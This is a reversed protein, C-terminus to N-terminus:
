SPMVESMCPLTAANNSLESKKLNLPISHTAMTYTVAMMNKLTIAMAVVLAEPPTPPVNAGESKTPAKMPAMTASTHLAQKWQCTDTTDNM